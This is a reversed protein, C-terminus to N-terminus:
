KVNGKIRITKNIQKKNEKASFALSKAFKGVLNSNYTIASQWTNEAVKDTSSVTCQCTPALSFDTLDESSFEVIIKTDSGKTIDGYDFTQIGNEEIQTVKEPSKNTITM